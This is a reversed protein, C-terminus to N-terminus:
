EVATIKTALEFRGAERGLRAALALSLMQVPLIELIPRIADPLEPIRLAREPSDHAVLLAKGGARKVDDALRRNLVEARADGAFIMVMVHAALTEFPGHRFAASSMGEAPFRTSEKLLLGGTQATALSSGRGTVFIHGIQALIGSFSSVHQRWESLYTEVPAVSASLVTTTTDPDGDTLVAALWALALLSCVYTKCSVSSEAGARILVQANSHRGLRSDAHNTVGLVPSRGEAMELLRVLEASEGSQSVAIILTRAGIIGNLYHILEATEVLLSPMGANTLRLHLPYLAYLSGGMGTLVVRTYEGSALAGALDRLASTQNLSDLSRRMAEPQSLIDGLYAGEVVKLESRM